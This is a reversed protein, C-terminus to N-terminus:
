REHVAYISRYEFLSIVYRTHCEKDPNSYIRGQPQYTTTLLNVGFVPRGCVWYRTPPGYLKTPDSMLQLKQIINTCHLINLISGNITLMKRKGM